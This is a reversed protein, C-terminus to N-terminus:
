REPGDRMSRQAREMGSSLARIVARSSITAGTILDVVAVEELGRGQFRELFQPSAVRDGIGRTELLRAPDIWVKTLRGLTDLGAWVEIPGGYGQGVSSFIVGIVRDQADYGLWVSDRLEFRLAGPLLLEIEPSPLRLDAKLYKSYRLVGERIGDTIARSSITAATIAEVKGEERDRTLYIEDPLLGKFQETFGSERVRLGLGPTEKLPEGPKIGVVRGATDLGVLTEIPGGYGRPAVKFVIGIPQGLSDIGQWVTAPEIEEFSSAQPLVTRLGEEESRQAELEIRSRTLSYVQSLALACITCILFPALVMRILERMWGMIHPPALPDLPQLIWKGM